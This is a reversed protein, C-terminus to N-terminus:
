VPFPPAHALISRQLVSEAFSPAFPPGTDLELPSRVLSQAPLPLVGAAYEQRAFQAQDLAVTSKSLTLLTARLTKCCEVACPVSKNPAQNGAPSDHCSPTPMKAAGEVAGIACHNSIALWGLAAFVVVPVRLAPNRLLNTM